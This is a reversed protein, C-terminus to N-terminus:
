CGIHFGEQNGVIAGVRTYIDENGKEKDPPNEGFAFVKKNGGRYNELIINVNSAEKSLWRESTGTDHLIWLDANQAVEERVYNGGAMKYEFNLELKIIRGDATKLDFYMRKLRPAKWDEKNIPELKDVRLNFLGPTNAVYIKVLEE